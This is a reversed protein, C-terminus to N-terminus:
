RYRGAGAWKSKSWASNLPTLVVGKSSSAHVYQGEGLYIGVHSVGKGNEDFFVLDGERLDSAKIKKSKAYMDRSTRPLAIGYVRQYVAQVFGSCDTGKTTNGGYRYPTGLWAQIERRLNREISLSKLDAPATAAPKKEPHVKRSRCGTGTLLAILLLIATSSLLRPM